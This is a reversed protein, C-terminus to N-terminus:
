RAVLLWNGAVPIEEQNKMGINENPCPTKLPCGEKTNKTFDEMSKM